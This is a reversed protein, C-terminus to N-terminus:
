GINKIGSHLTCSGLLFTRLKVRIFGTKEILHTLEEKSIFAAVSENLWTYEKYSSALLRGLFPVISRCYASLIGRLIKSEPYSAEMCFFYGGPKLVRQIEKLVKRYDSTNRLGFSITVTDFTNDKFPLSLADGLVFETNKIQATQARKKAIQLMASSFDLATIQSTKLHRGIGIAIDGTGCCVDLINKSETPISKILRKKWLRHVGFTIIDNMPDYCSSIKQFVSYVKKDKTQKEMM